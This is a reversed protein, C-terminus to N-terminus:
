KKFIFFLMCSILIAAAWWDTIEVHIRVVAAKSEQILFHAINLSSHVDSIILLTSEHTLILWTISNLSRQELTSFCMSYRWYCFIRVGWKLTCCKIWLVSNICALNVLDNIPETKNKCPFFFMHLPFEQWFIRKTWNQKLFNACRSSYVKIAPKIWLLYVVVM